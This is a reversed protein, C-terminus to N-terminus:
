TQFGDTGGASSEGLLDDTSTRIFEVEEYEFTSLDPGVLPAGSSDGFLGPLLVGGVLLFMVAAAMVTKKFKMIELEEGDTM